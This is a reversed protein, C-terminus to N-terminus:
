LGKQQKMLMNLSLGTVKLVTQMRVKHPEVRFRLEEEDIANAETYARKAKKWSCGLLTQIDAINLYTQSLVKEKTKM